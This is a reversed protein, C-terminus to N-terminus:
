EALPFSATPIDAPLERRSLSTTIARTCRTHRSVGHVMSKTIPVCLCYARSRPFPAPTSPLLATPTTSPRASHNAASFTPHPHRRSPCLKLCSTGDLVVGVQFLRVPIILCLCLCQCLRGGGGKKKTQVQLGCGQASRLASPMGHHQTLTHAHLFTSAARMRQQHHPQNQTFSQNISQDTWDMDPKHM